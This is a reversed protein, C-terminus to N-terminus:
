LRLVYEVIEEGQPTCLEKIETFGVKRYFENVKEEAKKAGCHLVQAGREKAAIVFAQFLATGIGGGTAEPSVAISTLSAVDNGEPTRGPYTLTRLLRPIIAPKRAVAPLSLWAFQWWRRKLLRRFFGAPNVMGTAFGLIRGRQSYVIAIGERAEVISEYYLALFGSGLLSLFYGPFSGRHIEVVENIDGLTMRRVPSSEAMKSGTTVSM